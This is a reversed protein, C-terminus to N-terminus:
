RTQWKLVSVGYDLIQTNPLLLCAGARPGMKYKLILATDVFTLSPPKNPNSPDSTNMLIDIIM